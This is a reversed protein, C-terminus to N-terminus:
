KFLVKNVLLGKAGSVRRQLYNNTYSFDENIVIMKLRPMFVKRDLLVKDVKSLDLVSIDIGEIESMDLVKSEVVLSHADVAGLIFHPKNKSCYFKCRRESVMSLCDDDGAYEVRFGFKNNVMNLYQAYIPKYDFYGQRVQIDYSLILELLIIDRSTMGEQLSCLKSLVGADPRIAADFSVSPIRDLLMICNDVMVHKTDVVVFEKAKTFNLQVTYYVIWYPSVVDPSAGLLELKLCKRKLSSLFNLPDDFATQIDNFSQFISIELLRIQEASSLENEDSLQSVEANLLEKDLSLESVKTKEVEYKIEISKNKQIFFLSLFIIITASTSSLICKTTNRIFFLYLVKLLSYPEAKTCYRNIYSAVESKLAEVNLYRLSADPHMSKAVVHKLSTPCGSDELGKLVINQQEEYSINTTNKYCSYDPKEKTLIFYLL